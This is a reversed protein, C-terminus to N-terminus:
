SSIIPRFLRADILSSGKQYTSTEYAPIKPPHNLSLLGRVAHWPNRWRQQTDTSISPNFVNRKGMFLCTYFTYVDKCFVRTPTLAWFSSDATEGCLRM